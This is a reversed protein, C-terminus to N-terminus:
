CARGRTATLVIDNGAGGGSTLRFSQNNVRVTAGEPLGNFAGNVNGGRMEVLTISQGLPVDTTRTLRLEAGNLTLSGDLVLRTSTNPGTGTKRVRVYVDDPLAAPAREGTLFGPFVTSRTGAITLTHTGIAVRALRAGALSGISANGQLNLSTQDGSLTLDGIGLEGSPGSTVAGSEVNVTPMSNAPNATVVTGGRVTLTSAPTFIMRGTVILMETYAVVGSGGLLDGALTATTRIDRFDPGAIIGGALTITDAITRGGRMRLTAGTNLVVGNTAGGGAGLAADSMPDLMSGTVVVRGTFTGTVGFLTLTADAGSVDLALGSAPDGRGVVDIITINAELQLIAAADELHLAGLTLTNSLNPVRINPVREFMARIVLGPATIIPARIKPAIRDVEGIVVRLAHTVRIPDGDIVWADRFQVFNRPELVLSHLTVGPLDNRSQAGAGSFVVDDGTEPGGSCGSWNLTRSWTGGNAGQWRCTEAQAADVGALGAALGLTLLLTLRPTM